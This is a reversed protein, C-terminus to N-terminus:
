ARNRPRRRRRMAPYRPTWRRCAPTEVLTPTLQAILVTVNPNAARLLKVIKDIHGVTEAAARGQLVDNLGTDLLVVDPVNQALYTPLAAEIQDSRFGSHGEHDQDYDTYLTPGAASTQTDLNFAKNSSGVFDVDYGALKLQKYLWFRYGAANTFSETVSDGLPIIKVASLLQRPELPEVLALDTQGRGSNDIPKVPKEKEARV